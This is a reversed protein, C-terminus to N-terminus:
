RRLKIKLYPEIAKGVAIAFSRPNPSKYEMYAEAFVESYKGKRYKEAAYGSLNARIYNKIEKSNYIDVKENELIPEIIDFGLEWTWERSTNAKEIRRIHAEIAHGVAM